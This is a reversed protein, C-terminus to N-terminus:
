LKFGTNNMYPRLPLYRCFEVGCYVFLNYFYVKDPIVIRVIRHAWWSYPNINKYIIHYNNNM